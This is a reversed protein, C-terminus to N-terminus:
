AHGGKRLIKQRLQAAAEESREPHNKLDLYV